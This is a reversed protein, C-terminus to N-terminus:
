VCSKIILFKSYITNISTKSAAHSVTYNELMKGFDRSASGSASKSADESANESASRSADGSASESADESARRSLVKQINIINDICLLLLM